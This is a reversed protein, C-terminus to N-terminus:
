VFNGLFDPIESHKDMRPILGPLGQPKVEEGGHSGQAASNKDDAQPCERFINQVPYDRECCPSEDVDGGGVEDRLQM